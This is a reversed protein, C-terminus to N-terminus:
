IPRPIIDCFAAVPVAIMIPARGVIGVVIGDVTDTIQNYLGSGSSGFWGPAIVLIADPWPGYAKRRGGMYAISESYIGNPWGKMMFHQRMSPVNCSLKTASFPASKPETLQLFAVDRRHDTLVVHATWKTDSDSDVAVSTEVANQVCHGATLVYGKGLYVGSCGDVYVPSAEASLTSVILAAAALLTRKM